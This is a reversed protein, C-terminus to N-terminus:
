GHIQIQLVDGGVERSRQGKLWDRLWDEVTYFRLPEGTTHLVIESILERARAETLRGGEIRAIRIRPDSMVAAGERPRDAENISVESATRYGTLVIGSHHNEGRTKTFARWITMFITMVDLRTCAHEVIDKWMPLVTKHLAHLSVLTRNGKGAIGRPFVFSQRTRISDERSKQSIEPM